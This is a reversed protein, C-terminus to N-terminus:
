ALGKKRGSPEQVLWAASGIVQVFWAASGLPLRGFASRLGYASWPQTEPQTITPDNTSHQPPHQNM